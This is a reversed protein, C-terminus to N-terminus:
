ADLRGLYANKCTVSGCVRTLTIAMLSIRIRNTEIHFNDSERDVNRTRLIAADHAAQSGALSQDLRRQVQDLGAVDLRGRCGDGGDGAHGAPRQELVEGAERIEVGRGEIQRDAAREIAVARDVGRAGSELRM